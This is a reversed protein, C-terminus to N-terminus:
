FHRNKNLSIDILFSCYINGDLTDKEFFVLKLM